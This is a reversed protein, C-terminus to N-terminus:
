GVGHVPQLGRMREPGRLGRNKVVFIRFETYVSTAATEVVPVANALRQQHQWGVNGSSIKLLQWDKTIVVAIGGDAIDKDAIRCIDQDANKGRQDAEPKEAQEPKIQPLGDHANKHQQEAGGVQGVHLVQPLVHAYDR